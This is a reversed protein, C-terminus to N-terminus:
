KGGSLAKYYLGVLRRYVEPCEESLGAQVKKEAKNKESESAMRNALEDVVGVFAVADAQSLRSFVRRFAEETESAKDLKDLQDKPVSDLSRLQRVLVRVDGWLQGVDRNLSSYSVVQV